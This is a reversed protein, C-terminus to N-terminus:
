VKGNVIVRFIAAKVIYICRQEDYNSFMADNESSGSHYYHVQVEPRNKDLCPTLAMAWRLIM